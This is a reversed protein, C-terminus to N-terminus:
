KKREEAYERLIEIAEKECDVYFPIKLSIIIQLFKGGFIGDESLVHVFVNEPNDVVYYDQGFFREEIAKKIFELNTM